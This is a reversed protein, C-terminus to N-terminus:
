LEVKLLLFGKKKSFSPIIMETASVQKGIKPIFYGDFESGKVLIDSSIHGNPKVKDVVLNWENREIENYLFVLQDLHTGALFSSYYGDDNMTVQDKRIVRYWDIEPTKSISYVVMDSFRYYYKVYSHNINYYDTYVEKEIDFYETLLVIGGDSRFVIDRPYYDKIYRYTKSKGMIQAIMEPSFLLYGFHATNKEPNIRAIALGTSEYKKPQSIFGSIVFENDLPNFKFVYSNFRITDNFLDTSRKNDNELNYFVLSFFPNKKHERNFETSLVLSVYNGSLYADEIGENKEPFVAFSKDYLIELKDDMVRASLRVLNNEIETPFLVLINKNYDDKSITFLRSSASKMKTSAIFREKRILSVNENLVDCYLKYTKEKKDYSSYFIFVHGDVLMIKDINIKNEIRFDYHGALKMNTNYKEIIFSQKRKKDFRTIYYNRNYGGLIDTYVLRGKVKQAVSWKVTQAQPAFVFLMVTSLTLFFTKLVPKNLNM